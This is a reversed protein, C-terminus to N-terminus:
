NSLGDHHSNIDWKAIGAPRKFNIAATKSKRSARHKSNAEILADHLKWTKGEKRSQKLSSCLSVAQKQSSLAGAWRRRGEMRQSILTLREQEMPIYTHTKKRDTIEGTVRRSRERETDRGEKYFL